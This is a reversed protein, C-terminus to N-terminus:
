IMCTPIIHVHPPVMHYRNWILCPPGDSKVHPPGYTCTPSWMIGKGYLTLPVMLDYQPPIMHVYPSRVIGTPSWVIHTGYLTLPVILDYMHPVMHVHPPGYLVQEIYPLPVMLDYMHPVM